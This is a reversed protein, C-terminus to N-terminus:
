LYRGKKGEGSVKVFSGRHAAEKELAHFYDQDIQEEKRKGRMKGM